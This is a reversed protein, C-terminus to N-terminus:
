YTGHYEWHKSYIRCKKQKMIELSLRTLLLKLLLEEDPISENGVNLQVGMKNSSFRWHMHMLETLENKMELASADDESGSLLDDVYMNELIEEAARPYEEKHDRAHKQVTAISLFPSSTSGFTVRTMCHKKPKENIELDRWLFRHSNQDKRKLQIQLFMKKIDAMLAVKRSRFRILVQVLDPQLKPGKM